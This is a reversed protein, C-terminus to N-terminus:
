NCVTTSIEYLRFFEDRCAAALRPDDSLTVLEINTDAGGSANWSGLLVSVPTQQPDLCVFFKSHLISRNRGRGSKLGRVRDLHAIPTIARFAALRSASTTHKDPYTLIAAGPKSAMARLVKSNSFWPSCALVYHVSPKCLEDLVLDEIGAFGVRVSSVQRVVVGERRVKQAAADFRHNLNLDRARPKSVVKKKAKKRPRTVKAM